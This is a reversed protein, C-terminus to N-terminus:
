LIVFGQRTGVTRSNQDVKGIGFIDKPGRMKKQNCNKGGIVLISFALESSDLQQHSFIKRVKTNDTFSQSGHDIM